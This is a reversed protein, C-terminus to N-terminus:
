KTSTILLYLPNPNQFFCHPLADDLPLFHQSPFSLFCGSNLDLFLSLPVELLCQSYLVCSSPDAVSHHLCSDFHLFLVQSLLPSLFLLVFLAFLLPFVRHVQFLLFPPFASEFAMLISRSVVFLLRYLFPVM